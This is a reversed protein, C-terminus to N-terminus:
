GLSVDRRGADKQVRQTQTAQSSVVVVLRALVNEVPEDREVLARVLADIRVKRTRDVGVLDTEEEEKEEGKRKGRSM